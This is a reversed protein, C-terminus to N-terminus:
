GFFHIFIYLIIGVIVPVGIFCGVIYLIITTNEPLELVAKEKARQKHWKDDPLLWKDVRKQARQRQSEFEHKLRGEEGQKGVTDRFWIIPNNCHMCIEAGITVGGKCYPCRRIDKQTQNLKKLEEVIQGSNEALKDTNERTKNTNLWNTAQALKRLNEDM